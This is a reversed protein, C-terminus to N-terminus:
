LTTASFDNYTCSICSTERGNSSKFAARVAVETKGYGVDGCLLRDMPREREMDGKIEDISKAQDPTLEYPFDMEFASQEATDEGYQYGVSMEREKYLAILEDAIDEVSQQVKAKTKKWESGGLKNLKPSKDESAVYKQVQDMQDVPVFLQDTGKYQM